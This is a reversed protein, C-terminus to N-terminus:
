KACCLNGEVNAINERHCYKRGNGPAGAQAVPSKFKHGCAPRKM